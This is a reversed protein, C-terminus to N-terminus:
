RPKPPWPIFASTRKIYDAYAPRREHITKETLSVGSVKLLLLTVLLPSLVSWWAGAALALLYFGWWTLAEGFYNPHRSWAWLGTDLVQGKNEPQSRFQSLQQDAVAEFSIGALVLVGGLWDLFNIDAPSQVAAVLPLAIVWALLLQLGFIIYLSKLWFHPSNNARISRYRHDEPQGWNRVALHLSLRGGWLGALLLVLWLRPHSLSQQLAVYFATLFIYGAWMVDVGHVNHKYVSWLWGLIMFIALPLLAHLWPWWYAWDTLLPQLHNM